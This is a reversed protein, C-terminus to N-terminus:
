RNYHIGLDFSVPKYVKRVKRIFGKNAQNTTRGSLIRGRMKSLAIEFNKLQGAQDIHM